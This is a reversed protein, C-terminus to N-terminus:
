DDYGIAEFTINEPKNYKKLAELLGDILGPRYLIKKFNISYEKIPLFESDHVAFIKTDNHNITDCPETIFIKRYDVGYYCPYVYTIVLICQTKRLSMRKFVFYIKECQIIEELIDMFYYEKTDVYLYWLQKEIHYPERNQFCKSLSSFMSYYKKISDDTKAKGWHNPKITSFIFDVSNKINYFFLNNTKNQNELLHTIFNLKKYLYRCFWIIGEIIGLIIGISIIARVSYAKNLWAIIITSGIVSALIVNREMKKSNSVMEKEMEINSILKKEMEILFKKAEESLKAEIKTEQEM